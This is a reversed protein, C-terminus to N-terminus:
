KGALEHRVIENVQKGDVRAGAAAFKSMVNKMVTGVDKATVTGMEAITARVAGVIEEEGVAKPLYAEIVGVEAQEKDALDQRGGKTFQEISDKRQKILTQLVQMTERDELPARKEIQRSKLASVVLRLTSLRQEERAKLAAVMDKQIQESLSM